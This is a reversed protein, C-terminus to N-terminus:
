QLRVLKETAKLRSIANEAYAQTIGLEVLQRLLDAESEINQSLGDVALAFETGRYLIEIKKM